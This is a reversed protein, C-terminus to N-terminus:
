RLKDRGEDARLALADVRRGNQRVKHPERGGERVDKVPVAGSFARARDERLLVLRTRGKRDSESLVSAASTEKATGTFSTRETLAPEYRASSFGTERGTM